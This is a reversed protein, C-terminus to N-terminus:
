CCTASRMSSRRPTAGWRTTSSAASAGPGCRRSSTPSSCPRARGRPARSSPTSPRPASPTPCARSATPPAPPPPALAGRAAGNRAPPHAPPARARERARGRAPAPKRNLQWGRYWFLLSSSRSSSSRRRPASGPARSCRTACGSAPASRGPRPPSRPSPSCGSTLRRPCACTRATTRPTASASSPRPSPSSSPPTGSTAPPATGSMGPRARGRRRRRLRLVGRAPAPGVDPARPLRDARRAAHQLGRDEHLRVGPPAPPVPPMARARPMRCHRERDADAASGTRMAAPTGPATMPDDGAAPKPSLVNVMGQPGAVVVETVKRAVKRRDTYERTASRGEVLLAAGKRVMAEVAEVAGGYVAIRHWETAEAPRGERDKWRETTALRFTAARGGGPLDRIEPDGGAYGLLTVRNIHLM